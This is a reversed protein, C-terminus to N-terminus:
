RSLSRLSCQRSRVTQRWRDHAITLGLALDEEERTRDLACPNRASTAEARVKWGNARLWRAFGLAEQPSRYLVRVAVFEASAIVVHWRERDMQDGRPNV